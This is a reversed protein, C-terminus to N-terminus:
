ENTIGLLVLAESIKSMAGSSEKWAQGAGSILATLIKIAKECKADTIANKSQLDKIAPLLTNKCWEMVTIANEKEAKLENYQKELANYSTAAQNYKNKFDKNGKRFVGGFILGLVTSIASAILLPLVRTIFFNKGTEIEANYKAMLVNLKEKITELDETEDTVTEVTEVSPQEAYAVATVSFCACLLTLLLFITILKKM